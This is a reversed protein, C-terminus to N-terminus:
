PSGNKLVSNKTKRRAMFFNVVLHIGYTALMVEQMEENYSSGINHPISRLWRASGKGICLCLWTMFVQDMVTFFSLDKLKYSRDFHICNM